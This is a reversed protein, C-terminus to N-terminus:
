GQRGHHGASALDKLLDPRARLRVTSRRRAAETKLGHRADTLRVPNAPVPDAPAVCDDLGPKLWIRHLRCVVILAEDTLKRFQRSIKAVDWGLCLDPHSASLVRVKWAMARELAQTAPCGAYGQHSLEAPCVWLPTAGSSPGTM